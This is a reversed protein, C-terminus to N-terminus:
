IVTVGLALGNSFCCLRFTQCATKNCSVNKVTRKDKGGEAVCVSTETSSKNSSLAEMALLSGVSVAYMLPEQINALKTCSVMQEGRESSTDIQM